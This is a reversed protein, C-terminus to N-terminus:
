ESRSDKEDEIRKLQRAIKSKLTEFCDLGLLYQLQLIMIMVDAVEEMINDKAEVYKASDDSAVARKWKNIAVILEACEECTQDLQKALGYTDSIKILGEYISKNWMENNLM